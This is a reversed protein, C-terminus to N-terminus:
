KERKQRSVRGSKQRLKPKRPETYTEKIAAQVMNQLKKINRKTRLSGFSPDKFLAVLVLEAYKLGLGPAVVNHRTSCIDVGNIRFMALAQNPKFAERSPHAGHEKAYAIIQVIRAEADLLRQESRSLTATEPTQGQQNPIATSAAQTARALKNIRNRVTASEEPFPATFQMPTFERRVPTRPMEYMVIVGMAAAAYLLNDVREGYMEQQICFAAASRLVGLHELINAQVGKAPLRAAEHLALVANEAEALKDARLQEDAALPQGAECEDILVFYTSGDNNALASVPPEGLMSENPYPRIYEASPSINADSM